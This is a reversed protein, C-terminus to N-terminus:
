ARHSRKTQCGNFGQTPFYHSFCLQDLAFALIEFTYYYEPSEQPTIQM